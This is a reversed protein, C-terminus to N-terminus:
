VGRILEFSKNNNSFGQCVLNDTLAHETLIRTGKQPECISLLENHNNYKRTRYLDNNAFWKVKNGHNDYSYKFWTVGKKKQLKMSILQNTDNYNFTYGTKKGNTSCENVYKLLQGRYIWTKFSNDTSSSSIPRDYEDYLLFTEVGLDNISYILNGSNDYENKVLYRDTHKRLINNTNKCRDIKILKDSNHNKSYVLQGLHDYSYAGHESVMHIISSKSVHDVLRNYSGSIPDDNITCTIKHPQNVLSDCNLFVERHYENQIVNQIFRSIEM